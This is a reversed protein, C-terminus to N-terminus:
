DCFCDLTAYYGVIWHIATSLTPTPHHAPAQRLQQGLRLHLLLALPGKIRVAKAILGALGELRYRRTPLAEQHEKRGLEVLLGHGVLRRKKEKEHTIVGWCLRENMRGPMLECVRGLSPKERTHSRM